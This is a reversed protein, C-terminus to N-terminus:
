LDDQACFSCSTQQMPYVDAILGCLLQLYTVLHLASCLSSSIQKKVRGELCDGIGATADLLATRGGVALCTPAMYSRSSLLEMCAFATRQRSCSNNEQRQHCGVALM